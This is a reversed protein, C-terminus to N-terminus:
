TVRVYGGGGGGADVESTFQISVDYDTIGADWHNFVALGSGERLVIDLTQGVSDFSPRSSGHLNGFTNPLNVPGMISRVVRKPTIVIGGVGYGQRVCVANRRAIISASLVETTDMQLPTVADGTGILLGSISEVTFISAQQFGAPEVTVKRVYLTVGSGVGNMLGFLMRQSSTTVVTAYLWENVGDSVVVHLAWKGQIFHDPTYLGFGEGEALTIPQTAASRYSM